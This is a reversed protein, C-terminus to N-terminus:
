ESFERELIKELEEVTLSKGIIRNNPGLLINDPLYTVNYKNAFDSNWAEGDCVQPWKIDHGLTSIKCSTTDTDLSVGVFIIKRYSSGSKKKKNKYKEYLSKLEDRFELAADDWSAWFEIFLYNERQDFVSIKEGGICNMTSSYVYRGESLEVKKKVVNEAQQIHPLDKLLGNMENLLSDMLLYDPKASNWLYDRFVITSSYESRHRRIFDAAMEHMIKIRLFAISDNDGFCLKDKEKNESEPKFAELTEYLRLRFDSLLKNDAVGGTVKLIGNKEDPVVSVETNRDAFVTFSEAGGNFVVDYIKFTDLEVKYTFNCDDLEIVYATDLYSTIDKILLRNDTVEKLQGKIFFTNGKEKKSCSLVSFIGIVFVLFCYKFFDKMITM